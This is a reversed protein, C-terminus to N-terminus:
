CDVLKHQPWASLVPKRQEQKRGCLGRQGERKNRRRQRKQKDRWATGTKLYQNPPQVNSWISGTWMAACNIKQIHSIKERLKEVAMLNKKQVQSTCRDEYEILHLCLVCVMDLISYFLFPKIRTSRAPSLSCHQLQSNITIWLTRIMMLGRLM